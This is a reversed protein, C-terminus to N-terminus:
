YLVTEEDRIIKHLSLSLSIVFSYIRSLIKNKILTVGILFIIIKVVSITPHRLKICVNKLKLILSNIIM